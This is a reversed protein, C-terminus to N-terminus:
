NGANRAKPLKVPPTTNMVDVNIACCYFCNRFNPGLALARTLEESMNHSCCAHRVITSHLMLMRSQNQNSANVAVATSQSVTNDIALAAFM